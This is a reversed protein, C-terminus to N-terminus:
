GFIKSFIADMSAFEPDDRWLRILRFFQWNSNTEEGMAALINQSLSQRSTRNAFMPMDDILSVFARSNWELLNHWSLGEQFDYTPFFLNVIVDNEKRTKPLWEALLLSTIKKCSWKSDNSKSVKIGEPSPHNQTWGELFAAGHRSIADGLLYKPKSKNESQYPILPDKELLVPWPFARALFALDKMRSESAENFAEFLQDVFLGWEGLPAWGLIIGDFALGVCGRSESSDLTLHITKSCEDFSGNPLPYFELGKTKSWTIVKHKEPDLEKRELKLDVTLLSQFQAAKSVLGGAFTTQFFIDEPGDNESATIRCGLGSIRPFAMTRGNMSGRHFPGEKICIPKRNTAIQGLEWGAAVFYSHTELGYANRSLIPDVVKWQPPNELFGHLKLTTNIKPSRRVEKRKGAINLKCAFTLGSKLEKPGLVMSGGPNWTGEQNCPWEATQVKISQAGGELKPIFTKGLYLEQATTNKEDLIVLEPIAWNATDAQAIDTEWRVWGNEDMITLRNGPHILWFRGSGFNISNKVTGEIKWHPPTRVVFPQNTNPSGARQFKNAERKPLFFSFERDDDFLNFSLSQLSNCQRDILEVAIRPSQADIAFTELDSANYNGQSDRMFRGVRRGNFLVHITSAEWGWSTTQETPLSKLSAQFIPNNSSWELWPGYLFDETGFFADMDDAVPVHSKTEAKALLQPISGPWVWPNRKLQDSALNFAIEKKRFAKLVRILDRFSPSAIPGTRLKHLIRHDQGEQDTGQPGLWFPIREFSAVRLGFQLLITRYWYQTGIEDLQHRLNWRNVLERLAESFRITPTSKQLQLNQLGQTSYGEFAEPWIEGSKGRSWNRLTARLLFLGAVRIWPENADSWFSLNSAWEDLWALDEPALGSGDQSSTQTLECLSIPDNRNLRILDVRENLREFAEQTQQHSLGAFLM